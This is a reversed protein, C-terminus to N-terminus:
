ATVRRPWLTWDLEFALGVLPKGNRRLDTEVAIASATMNDFSISANRETSALEITQERVAVIRM